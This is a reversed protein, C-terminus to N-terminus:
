FVYSLSVNRADFVSEFFDTRFGFGGTRRQHEALLPNELYDIEQFARMAMPIFAYSINIGRHIRINLGVELNIGMGIERHSFLFTASTHPLIRNREYFGFARAGIDGSLWSTFPFLKGMQYGALFSLYEEDKSDASPTLISDTPRAFFILQDDRTYDFEIFDIQRYRGDKDVKRSSFSISYQLDRSSFHRLLDPNSALPMPEPMETKNKYYINGLSRWREEEPSNQASLPTLLLILAIFSLLRM